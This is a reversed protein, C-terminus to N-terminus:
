LNVAFLWSVFELVRRSLWVVGCVSAFMIGLAMGMLLTMTTITQMVIV